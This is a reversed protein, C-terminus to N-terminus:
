EKRVMVNEHQLGMLQSTGTGNLMLNADVIIFRELFTEPM